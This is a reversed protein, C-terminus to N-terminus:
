LVIFIKEYMLKEENTNINEGMKKYRDLVLYVMNEPCVPRIATDSTVVAYFNESNEYNKESLFSPLSRKGSM